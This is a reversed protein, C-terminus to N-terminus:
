GIAQIHDNGIQILQSNRHKRRTVYREFQGTPIYTDRTSLTSLTLLIQKLQPQGEQLKLHTMRNNADLHNLFLEVKCGEKILESALFATQDIFTEFNTHLGYGSPGSLNLALSFTDQNSTEFVKTQLRGTKATAYWDIEKSPEATYPKAGLQVLKNKLPSYRDARDGIRLRHLLLPTAQATLSPLITFHPFADFTFLYVGMRWPLRITLTLEDFHAPGRRMAQIPIEIQEDSGIVAHYTHPHLPDMDPFILGNDTHLRLTTKLGLKELAELGFLQLRLATSEQNFMLPEYHKWELAVDRKLQKETQGVVYHVTAIAAFLFGLLSLGPIFLFVFTLIVYVSFLRRELWFPVSREIHMVDGWKLRSRFTM